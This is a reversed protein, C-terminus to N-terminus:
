PPRRSAIQGGPRSDTGFPDAPDSPPRTGPGRARAEAMIRSMGDLFFSDNLLDIELDDDPDHSLDASDLDPLDPPVTPM